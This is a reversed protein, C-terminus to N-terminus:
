GEAALGRESAAHAAVIISRPAVPARPTSAEPAHSALGRRERKAEYLARDAARYLADLDRGCAPATSIGICHGVRSECLEHIRRAVAEAASTSADSLLVAFEDGGLRALSDGTRLTLAIQRAIWVLLDDGALHGHADNYSKFDDLDIIMLALPAGTRELAAFGGAAAEGLGRRNLCGTLPDTISARALERRRREHNHAQWWSVLAAGGLGGLVILVRRWPDGYIAALMGYGGVAFASVLRVSWTPYSAGAFVIPLYLLYIVPSSAGGDLVAATGIVVLNIITWTLFVLERWSSRIIRRWPLVFAVLGCLLAGAGLSVLLTRHGPRTAAYV